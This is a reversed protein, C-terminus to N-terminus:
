VTEDNAVTGVGAEEMRTLDLLMVSRIQVAHQQTPIIDVHTRTDRGIGM